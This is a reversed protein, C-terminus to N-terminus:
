RSKPSAEMASEMVPDRCGLAEADDQRRSTDLHNVERAVPAFGGPRAISGAGTDAAVKHSARSFCLFGATEPNEDSVLATAM